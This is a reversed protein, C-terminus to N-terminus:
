NTEAAQEKYMRYIGAINQPLWSEYNQWDAYRPMKLTNQMEELTLGAKDARVIRNELERLYQAQEVADHHIGVNGHGPVLYTFPLRTLRDISLYWDPFKGGTLDGNPLSEVSVFDVAFVAEEKPFHAVIMDDTHNVGLYKLHVKEGGLQLTLEEDFTVQPLATPINSNKIHDFANRHAIIVAGDDAFVEGGSANDAHHHSYFVYKVTQGFRSDLETKLWEAAEKNIPDGVIIGDDTVYVIGAHHNNIFRYLKGLVPVLEHKSDDQALTATSTFLFTVALALVTLLNPKLKVIVAVAAQTRILPQAIAQQKIQHIMATLM